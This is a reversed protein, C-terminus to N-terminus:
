EMPGRNVTLGLRLLDTLMSRVRKSPEATSVGM